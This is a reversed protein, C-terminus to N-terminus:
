LADAVQSLITAAATPDLPATLRDKLTGGSVFKMVFYLTGEQEGFHYIDLINPHSLAAVAAAERRFREVLQRDNAVEIPLVKIAVHRNLSPQLAKYVTAM